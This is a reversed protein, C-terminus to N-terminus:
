DMCGDVTLKLGNRINTKFGCVLCRSHKGKWEKGLQKPENGVIIDVSEPSNYSIGHPVKWQLM